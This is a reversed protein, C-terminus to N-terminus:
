MKLPFYSNATFSQQLLETYKYQQNVLDYNTPFPKCYLSFSCLGCFNEVVYTKMYLTSSWATNFSLKKHHYTEAKGAVM